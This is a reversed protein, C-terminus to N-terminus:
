YVLPEAAFELSTLMKFGYPIEGFPSLFTNTAGWLREVTNYTVCCNTLYAVGNLGLYFSGLGAHNLMSQIQIEPTGHERM